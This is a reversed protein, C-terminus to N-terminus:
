ILRVRPIAVQAHNSMQEINSEISTSLDSLEIRLSPSPYKKIRALARSMLKLAGKENGRLLHHYAVALQILGQLLDRHIGKHKLWIKELTEHCAFFEKNNFEDIGRYFESLHEPSLQDCASEDPKTRHKKM